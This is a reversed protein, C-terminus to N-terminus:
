GSFSKKNQNFSSVCVHQSWCLINWFRHLKLRRSILSDCMQFNWNNKSFNNSSSKKSVNYKSHIVVWENLSLRAFQVRKNQIQTKRHNFSQIFNMLRNERSNVSLTTCCRKNSNSIVQLVNAYSIVLVDNTFSWFLILNIFSFQLLLPLLYYFDYFLM